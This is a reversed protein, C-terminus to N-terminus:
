YLAQAVRRVQARQGRRLAELPTMGLSDEHEHLWEIIEPDKFGADTLLVITGRLTAIVEGDQLFGAPVQWVSRDGHKVAIVHRDRVLRRARGFDIGLADALDPLTLWEDVLADLDPGDPTTTSM